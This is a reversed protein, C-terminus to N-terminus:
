AEPFLGKSGAMPINDIGIFDGLDKKETQEMKLTM